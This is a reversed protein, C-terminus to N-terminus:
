IAIAQSTKSLHRHTGGGRAIDLNVIATENYYPGDSPLEDRMFVGCFNPIKFSQAYKM